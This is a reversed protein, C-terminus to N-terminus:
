RKSQIVGENNKVRETAEQIVSNGGKQKWEELVKPYDSIPEKGYVMKLVHTLIVPPLKDGTPAIDPNKAYAQLQPDFQIGDRGEKALVTDYLKMLNQGEPTLSLSGKNYTTDQVLWLLTQRYTEEDVEAATAPTKYNIKGNEETYNEGKVGFTFFKEAEDSVMWDFFKIIGAPDKANKNILYARTVKGVLRLGGKGDPGTPSAILKMQASPNSEKLQSDWQILLNANMNWIGAKGAIIDNKFRTPNITAFEKNILGEDLMTKYTQIAKQMGDVNFFKPVVQDGQKMFFNGFVDYAGYFADSYVFDERGMFPNEVGLKKFARMVNLYDEVTKPEPLGTKELLDSRIWTARRAPNSLWEPIGYINGKADTETDWADKPIKKLLNQGHKALLDNLPMFVGAKVAGALQPNNLGSSAQVVDPIDNIAFMQIMKQDFEKHPMLRIDLDTNTLAELRKVWKEENINPHQEAYSINGSRFSISFAAKGQPGASGEAAKNGAQSCGITTSAISLVSVITLLKKM